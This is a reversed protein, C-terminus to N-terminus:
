VSRRLPVVTASDGTGDSKGAVRRYTSAGAAGAVGGLFATAATTLAFISVDIVIEQWDRKKANPEKPTQKM